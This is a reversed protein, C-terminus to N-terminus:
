LQSHCFQAAPSFKTSLPAINRFICVPSVPMRMISIKFIRTVFQAALSIKTSYPVMNKFIWIPSIHGRLFLIYCFSM